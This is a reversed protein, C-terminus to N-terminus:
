NPTKEKIITKSFCLQGMYRKISRFASLLHLVFFFLTPFFMFISKKDKYNSIICNSFPLYVFLNLLSLLVLKPSLISCIMLVIVHIPAFVWRICNEFLLVAFVLLMCSRKFSLEERKKIIKYYRFAEFPGYYWTSKQIYLAKISQPSDAIELFPIPVIPVNHNKAQMGLMMDENITNESFFGIKTITSLRFYLGHGICYNHKIRKSKGIHFCADVPNHKAFQEVANAMEYGISWRTQWISAALLTKYEFSKKNLKTCPFTYKGYQQLLYDKGENVEFALTAWNITRQDILSDANYLAFIPDIEETIQSYQHIAYNVQSSMNGEGTYHFVIINNYQKKLEEVVHLTNKSVCIERIIQQKYDSIDESSEYHTIVLHKKADSLVKEIESKTNCKEIENIYEKKSIIKNEKETTVLIIRVNHLTKEIYDITRRIRHSEDLVPIIINVIENISVNDICTSSNFDNWKKMYKQAVYYKYFWKLSYFILIINLVIVTYTAIEM